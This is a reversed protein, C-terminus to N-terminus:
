SAALVHSSQGGVVQFFSIVRSGAEHRARVGIRERSAAAHAVTRIAAQPPLSPSPADV